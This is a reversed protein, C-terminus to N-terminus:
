WGAKVPSPLHNKEDLRWYPLRSLVNCNSETAIKCHFLDLIRKVLCTLRRSCHSNSLSTVLPQQLFYHRFLVYVLVFHAEIPLRANRRIKTSRATPLIEIQCIPVM